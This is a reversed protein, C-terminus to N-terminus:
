SVIVSKPVLIKIDPANTKKIQHVEIVNGKDTVNIGLGTNDELGLSNITRLGTAREDKEERSNNSSFIIENGSHGEVTVRGLYLQLRGSNKSVKFEQAQVWFATLLVLASIIISKKKM